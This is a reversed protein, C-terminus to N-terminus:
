TLTLFSKKSCIFIRIKVATKQFFHFIRSGKLLTFNSLIKKNITFFLKYLQSLHPNNQM